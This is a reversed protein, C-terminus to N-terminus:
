VIRRFELHVNLSVGDLDESVADEEMVRFTHTGDPSSSLPYTIGNFSVTPDIMMGLNSNSQGVLSDCNLWFLGTAVAGTQYFGIQKVKVETPVFPVYITRQFMGTADLVEQIFYNYRQVHHHASM